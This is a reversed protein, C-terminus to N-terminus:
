ALAIGWGHLAMDHWATCAALAMMLGATVGHLRLAMNRFIHWIGNAMDWIDHWAMLQSSNSCRRRPGSQLNEEREGGADPQLGSDAQM